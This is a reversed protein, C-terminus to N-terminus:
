KKTLDFDGKFNLMGFGFLQSSVLMNLNHRQSYINKILLTKSTLNKIREATKVGMEIFEVKTFGSQAKKTTLDEGASNVQTEKLLAADITTIADTMDTLAHAYRQTFEQGAVTQSLSFDYLNVENENNDLSFFTSGDNRLVAQDYNAASRVKFNQEELINCILFRIDPNDDIVLIEKLM